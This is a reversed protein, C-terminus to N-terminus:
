GRRVEADSPIRGSVVSGCEVRAGTGVVAGPEVTVAGGLEANDGFAGGFRVGEHHTGDVVLDARGGEVTVNPGVCANEGVVCDRLVCGPEITADPLVVANSVVANAGVDVNAGLSTGRLVTAGPRVRTDPGIAVTGTVTAEDHVRVHDAVESGQRDLVGANVSLLDWLHSVDLWQGQFTVARVADDAIHGELTDTLAQEGDTRTGRIADFVDEGFAYVGANILDSTVSHAPPKEQLNAVRRGDLEVVGYDSPEGSRTVAMLADNGRDADLLQEVITPEIVRDGNLALFDGDVFAEAQLVAHGTGLQRDQVAYEISVGWDDGDGFHDQIRERKYGVVLVIDEVGAEAVAEVVHELLPRNVIPLMPKPRVDTFPELRRGEGAALIVAKM